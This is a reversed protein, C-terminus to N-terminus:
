HDCVEHANLFVEKALELHIKKQKETAKNAIEEYYVGLMNYYQSIEGFNPPFLKTALECLAKAHEVTLYSLLMFLYYYHTGAKQYQKLKGYSNACALHYNLNLSHNPHVKDLLAEVV